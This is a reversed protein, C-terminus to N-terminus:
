LPDLGTSSKMNVNTKAELMSKIGEKNLTVIEKM